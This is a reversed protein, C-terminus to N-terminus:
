RGRKAMNSFKSLDFGPPLGHLGEVGGAGGGHHSQNNRQQWYMVGVAFLLMIPARLWGLDLSSTPQPLLSEYLDVRYKVESANGRLEVVHIALAAPHVSPEKGASIGTLRDVASMSSSAVLSSSLAVISRETIYSPVSDYSTQYLVMETNTTMVLYGPIARLATQHQDLTHSPPFYSSLRQKPLLQGVLVCSPESEEDAVRNGDDDVRAAYGGSARRLRDFNVLRFVLGRGSATGAYITSHRSPDHEISTINDMSAECTVGSVVTQELSNIFHIRNEVAFAVIGTALVKFQTISCSSLSASSAGDRRGGTTPITKIYTGNEGHFFSVQGRQNATIVYAHSYLTVVAIKGNRFSEDREVAVDMGSKDNGNTRFVLDFDVHLYNAAPSTAIKTTTRWPLQIPMGMWNKQFQHAYNFRQVCMSLDFRGPRRHDGALLRKNHLVRLKYLSIAGSEGLTALYSMRDSVFFYDAIRSSADVLTHQWMLEKTIPHLLDIRGRQMDFAMLFQLLPRRLASDPDLGNPNPMSKRGVQTMRSTPNANPRFSLLDMRINGVQKPECYGDSTSGAPTGTATTAEVSSSPHYYSSHFAFWDSFRQIVGKQQQQHYSRQGYRQQKALRRTQTQQQTASSNSSTRKSLLLADQDDYQVLLTRLIAAKRKYLEVQREIATQEADVVHTLIGDRGGDDLNSSPNTTVTAGHVLPCCSLLMWAQPLLLWVCRLALWKAGFSSMASSPALM